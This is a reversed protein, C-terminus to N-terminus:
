SDFWPMLVAILSGTMWFGGGVVGILLAVVPMDVTFYWFNCTMLLLWLMVGSVGCGVIVSGWSDPEVRTSPPTTDYGRGRHDTSSAYVTEPENSDTFVSENKSASDGTNSAFTESWNCPVDSVIIWEGSEVLVDISGRSVADVGNKHAKPIAFVSQEEIFKVEGGGVGEIFQETVAVDSDVCAETDSADPVSFEHTFAVAGTAQVTFDVVLVSDTTEDRNIVPTCAVPREVAGYLYATEVYSVVDRHESGSDVSSGNQEDPPSVQSLSRLATAEVGFNSLVRAPTQKVDYPLEIGNMETVDSNKVTVSDSYQEDDCVYSDAVLGTLDRLTKETDTKRDVSIEGGIFDEVSVSKSQMCDGGGTTEANSLLSHYVRWIREFSGSNSKVSSHSFEPLCVYECEDGYVVEVALTEERFARNEPPLVTINTVMGTGEALEGPMQLDGHKKAARYSHYSSSVSEVVSDEVLEEARSSRTEVTEQTSETSDSMQM